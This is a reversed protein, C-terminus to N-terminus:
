SETEQSHKEIIEDKLKNLDETIERRVDIRGKYYQEKGYAWIGGIICGLVNVGCILLVIKDSKTFM